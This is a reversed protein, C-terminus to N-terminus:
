YKGKHHLVFTAIMWVRIEVVQSKLPGIVIEIFIDSKWIQKYPYIRVCFVCNKGYETIRLEDSPMYFYLFISCFWLIGYVKRNWM